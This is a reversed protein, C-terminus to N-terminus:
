CMNYICNMQVKKKMASRVNHFYDGVEDTCFRMVNNPGALSSILNGKTGTVKSTNTPINANLFVIEFADIKTWSFLRYEKM